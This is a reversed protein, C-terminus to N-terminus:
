HYFYKYTYGTPSLPDIEEFCLVTEPYFNIPVDTSVLLINNKYVDYYTDYLHIRFTTSM